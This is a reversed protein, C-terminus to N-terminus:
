NLDKKAAESGDYVVTFRYKKADITTEVVLPASEECIPNWGQRTQEGIAKTEISLIGNADKTRRIDWLQMKTSRGDPASACGRPEEISVVANIERTGAVDRLACNLDGPRIGVGTEYRDGTGLIRLSTGQVFFPFGVPEIPEIWCRFRDRLSGARGVLGIRQAHMAVASGFSDLLRRGGDKERFPGIPEDDTLYKHNAKM